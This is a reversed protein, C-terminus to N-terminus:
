PEARDIWLSPDGSDVASVAADLGHTWTKSACEETAQRFV